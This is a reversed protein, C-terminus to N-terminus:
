YVNLIMFFISVISISLCIVPYFKRVRADKYFAFKLGWLFMTICVSVQLAYYSNFVRIYMINHTTLFVCILTILTVVVFSWSLYVIAKELKDINSLSSTSVKNYNKM